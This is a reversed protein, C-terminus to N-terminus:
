APILAGVAITLEPFAEPALSAERGHSTPPAFGGGPGRRFVLVQDRTLDVVWYERVECAAYLRAKLELDRRLGSDAVEVLLLARRPHGGSYDGDPVVALDPGPESDDSAAFPCQVRLVAKAMLPGFARTLRSVVESHRTGQPSMTVLRGGLLEVREGAFVGQEVLRDYEDRRLPRVREPAIVEPDFALTM